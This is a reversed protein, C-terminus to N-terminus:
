DYSDYDEARYGHGATNDDDEYRVVEEEEEEESDSGRVPRMDKDNFVDVDGFAEPSLTIYVKDNSEEDDVELELESPNDGPSLWKQKKPIDEAKLEKSWLKPRWWIGSM